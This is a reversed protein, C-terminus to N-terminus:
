AAAINESSPRNQGVDRAAARTMSAQALRRVRAGLEGDAEMKVAIRRVGYMVTTHDYGGMREGIDPLSLKTCNRAIWMVIQRPHTVDHTRTQELLRQPTMDFDRAVVAIIDQLTVRAM